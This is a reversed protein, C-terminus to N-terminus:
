IDAHQGQIVTSVIAIGWNFFRLKRFNFNECRGFKFERFCSNKPFQAMPLINCEVKFKETWQEFWHMSKMYPFYSCCHYVQVSHTTDAWRETTADLSEYCFGTHSQCLECETSKLLLYFTIVNSRITECPLQGETLPYFFDFIRLPENVSCFYSALTLLQTWSNCM